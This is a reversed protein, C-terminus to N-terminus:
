DDAPKAQESPEFQGSVVSQETALFRILLLAFVFKAGVDLLSYLWSTTALGVVGGGFVALGETGLAWVVPYGVWLVVTLYKLRDFLAQVPAPQREADRPWEVLLVYLVVVFFASSLVFWAWRLWVAQSTMAAALGTLCMAVDFLVVTFLKTLNTGALLGLAVLILPTSFTWTLYRGWLTVTEGRGPIAVVGVTLGSVLALYSAISVAPIGITAVVILREYDGSVQRGLVTFVLLAVGMLAIMTWLSSALLPDSLAEAVVDNAQLPGPVIEFGLPVVM